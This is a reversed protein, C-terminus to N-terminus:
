GGVGFPSWPLGSDFPDWADDESAERVTGPPEQALAEPSDKPLFADLGAEEVFPSVGGAKSGAIQRPCVVSLNTGARTLAVYALRREQELQEAM